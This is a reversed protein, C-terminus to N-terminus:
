ASAKELFLPMGERRQGTQEMWRQVRPDSEEELVTLVDQCLPSVVASTSSPLMNFRAEAPQGCASHGLNFAPRHCVIPPKSPASCSKRTGMLSLAVFRQKSGHCLARRAQGRRLNHLVKM